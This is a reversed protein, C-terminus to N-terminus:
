PKCNGCPQFGQALLEDRSSFVDKRNRASIEPVSRCDPFHFRRTNKNLVYDQPEATVAPMAYVTPEPKPTPSPTPEPKPNLPDFVIVLVLVILALACAVGSLALKKNESM